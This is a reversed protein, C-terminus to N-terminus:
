ITSAGGLQAYSALKKSVVGGALADLSADYGPLEVFGRFSPAVQLEAHEESRAAHGGV